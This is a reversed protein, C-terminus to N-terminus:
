FKPLGDVILITISIGTLLDYFSLSYSKDHVISRLLQVISMPSVTCLWLLALLQDVIDLTIFTNM